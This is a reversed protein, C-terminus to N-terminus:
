SEVYFGAVFSNGKVSTELLWPSHATKKGQMAKEQKSTQYKALKQKKGAMTQNLTM